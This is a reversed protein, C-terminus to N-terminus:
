SQIIQSNQIANRYQKLHEIVDAIIETGFKEILDIFEHSCAYCQNEHMANYLAELAKIDDDITSFSM